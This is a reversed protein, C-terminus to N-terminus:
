RLLELTTEVMQQYRKLVAINAQYVRSAVNLNMMEIPLNVNPMTIYGDEDAQPNGPDMIKM